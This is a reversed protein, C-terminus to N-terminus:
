QYSAVVKLVEGLHEHYKEGKEDRGMAFVIHKEPDMM